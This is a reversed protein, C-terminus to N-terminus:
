DEDFETDIDEDSSEDERLVEDLFMFELAQEGAYLDGDGNLDFLDGFIGKM